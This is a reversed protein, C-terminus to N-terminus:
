GSSGPALKFIVGSGSPGGAYTAGYLNGASDFTLAAYPSAGDTGGAFAYAVSETWGSSTKTLKFVTGCGTACYSNVTGGLLTTGYVNGAADAVLRAYPERGDNGGTFTYLVTQTWGGNGPSLKFVTGCGQSCYTSGGFNTTGYLNGAQDFILGGSPQGGDPGGTFSYLTAESWTGDQSHTMQFVTGQNNAGGMQTTGYLNGAKDFILGAYPSKPDAGGSFSYLANESGSGDNPITAQSQNSYASENGMNDVATTVYFYTQGGQVTGDSYATQSDLTTNLKAYPGNSSPGRYVNYGVVNQSTSADWSLSVTHAVAFVSLVLIIALIFGFHVARAQSRLYKV